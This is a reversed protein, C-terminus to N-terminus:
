KTSSRQPFYTNTGRENFSDGFLGTFSPKMYKSGKRRNDTKIIEAIVARQEEGDRSDIVPIFFPKTSSPTKVKIIYSKLSPDTVKETTTLAIRKKAM